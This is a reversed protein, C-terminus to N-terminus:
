EYYHLPETQEKQHQRPPLEARVGVEPHGIGVQIRRLDYCFIAALQGRRSHGRQGENEVSGAGHVVVQILHSLAGFANELRHHLLPFFENVVVDEDEKM